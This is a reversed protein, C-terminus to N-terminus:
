RGEAFVFRGITIVTAPYGVGNGNDVTTTRARVPESVTNAGAMHPTDSFADIVASVITDSDDQAEINDFGGVVVVVDVEGAWQRVGATHVLDCRVEDVFACPIAGISGPRASYTQAFLATGDLVTKAGSRLDAIVSM